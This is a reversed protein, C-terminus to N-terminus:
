MFYSTSLFISRNVNCATIPMECSNHLTELCESLRNVNFEMMVGNFSELASM